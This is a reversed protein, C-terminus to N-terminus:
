DWFDNLIVYLYTIICYSLQPYFIGNGYGMENAIVPRIKSPFFNHDKISISKDMAYVNSAHSVYDHGLIFKKSIYPIFIIVAIALIILYRKDIEFQALRYIRGVLTNKNKCCEKNKEEKM